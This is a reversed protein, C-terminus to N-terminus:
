SEYRRRVLLELALRFPRTMIRPRTPHLWFRVVRTDVGMLDAFETQSEFLGIISAVESPTLVDLTKLLKDTALTSEIYDALAM